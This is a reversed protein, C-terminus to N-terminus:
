NALKESWNRIGYILKGIKCELKQNQLNIKWNRIRNNGFVPFLYRHPSGSSDHAEGSRRERPAIIRTPISTGAASAASTATNMM